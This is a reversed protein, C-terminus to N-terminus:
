LGQSWSSMVCVFNLPHVGSTLGFITRRDSSERTSACPVGEVNTARALRCSPAESCSVALNRGPHRPPAWGDPSPPRWLLVCSFRDM